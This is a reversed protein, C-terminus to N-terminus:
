GEHSDGEKMLLEKLSARARSLRAYVNSEKINLVDAIEAPSFEHYYRLMIVDAYSENIQKLRKAMERSREFDIMHKEILNENDNMKLEMEENDLRIVKKRRKYADFSRNRVITVVLCGTKKCNIENIKEIHDSIKLIADQVMDEAEHSDHLINEAVTFMKNHYALYIEELKNRTVEDQIVLLFTLM